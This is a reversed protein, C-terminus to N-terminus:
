VLLTKQFWESVKNIVNKEWKTTSFVHDAGKVVYLEVTGGAGCVTEVYEQSRVPQISQDNSGNIVLVPCRINKIHELPEIRSLDEFFKKGFLFSNWEVPFEEVNISQSQAIYSLDLLPRGVPNLLVCSKIRGKLTGATVAGVVGGMSLGLVGIREPDANCDGILFEISKFGDAIEGSLTMDEFNGESDGSGRFDFRLVMIGHRVLCRALKVFLFHAETKSGTMGHFFVVAPQRSDSTTKHLMGVIQMGENEFVVPIECQKSM